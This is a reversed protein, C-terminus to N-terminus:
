MGTSCLLPSFNMSYFSEMSPLHEKELQLTYGHPELKYKITMFQISYGYRCSTFYHLDIELNLCNNM